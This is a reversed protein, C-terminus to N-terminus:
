DASLISFSGPSSSTVSRSKDPNPEIIVRALEDTGRRRGGNARGPKAAVIPSAPLELLRKLM